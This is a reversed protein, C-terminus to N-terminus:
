EPFLLGTEVRICCIPNDVTGDGGIYRTNPKLSVLPRVGWQDKVNGYKYLGGSSGVPFGRAMMEYLRPSLTWYLNGTYLYYNNNNTDIKSGAYMVEDSTLLGVPYILAGNGNESGVTFSDNKNKCALSPQYTTDARIFSSYYLDDTAKGDKTWGGSSSWSRDNCWVTDELNETYDTMNEKYWNDIATKITSDTTNTYEATMERLADEVNKGGSLTIYYAKKGNVWVYNIYYVDSCEGTTNM